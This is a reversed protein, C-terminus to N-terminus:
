LIYLVVLVPMLLLDLKRTVKRDVEALDEASLGQLSIPVEVALHRDEYQDTVYEPQYAYATDLGKGESHNAAYKGEDISGMTAFLQTAFNLLNL